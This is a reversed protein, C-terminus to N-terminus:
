FTEVPNLADPSLPANDKNTNAAIQKLDGMMQEFLPLIRENFLREREAGSANNVARIDSDTAGAQLAVLREFGSIGGQPSIRGQRGAITLLREEAKAREAETEAKAIDDAALAIDRNLPNHDFIETTRFAPSTLRLPSFFRLNSGDISQIQGLAARQLQFAREESEFKFPDRGFTRSLFSRAGSLLDFSSGIGLEKERAKLREEIRSFEAGAAVSEALEAKGKELLEERASKSGVSFTDVTGSVNGGFSTETQKLNSLKKEKEALDKRNESFAKIFPISLVGEAIKPAIEAIARNPDGLEGSNIAKLLIDLKEVAGTASSLDITRGAVKIEQLSAFRQFFSQLLTVIEADKGPFKSSAVQFTALVKELSDTDAMTVLQPLLKNFEASSTSADAGAAGVLNSADKASIGKGHVLLGISTILRSLDQNPDALKLSIAQAVVDSLKEIPFGQSALTPFAGGIALAVEKRGGAGLQPAQQDVIDFLPKAKEQFLGTSAVMSGFAERDTMQQKRQDDQRKKVEDIHQKMKNIAFNAAEAASAIPVFAVALQKANKIMGQMGRSGKRLGRDLGAADAVARKEAKSLKNFENTLNVLDTHESEIKIDAM